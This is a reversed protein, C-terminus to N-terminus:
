ILEVQLFDREEAVEDTPEVHSEIQDLFLDQANPGGSATHTDRKKRVDALERVAAPTTEVISRPPAVVVGQPEVEDVLATVVREHLRADRFPTCAEGTPVAILV